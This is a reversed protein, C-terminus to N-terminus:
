NLSSWWTSIHLWIGFCGSISQIYLQVNFLVYTVYTSSFLSEKLSLSMVYDSPQSKRESNAKWSTELVGPMWAMSSCSPPPWQSPGPQSKWVCWRSKEGGGLSQKRINAKKCRHLWNRACFSELFSVPVCLQVTKEKYHVLSCVLAFLLPGWRKRERRHSWRASMSVHPKQLSTHYLSKSLHSQCYGQQNRGTCNFVHVRFQFRKTCEFDAPAGINLIDITFIRTLQLLNKKPNRYSRMIM